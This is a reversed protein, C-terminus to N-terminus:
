NYQVVDQVVDSLSYNLETSIGNATSDSLEDISLNIEDGTYYINKHITMSEKIFSAKFIIKKTMGRFSGKRKCVILKNDKNHWKLDIYSYEGNEYNYNDGEDDYLTFFADAGTYVLLNILSPDIDNTSKAVECMPIISGEKVFVPIVDIPANCILEQGGEYYLNTNFDYWNNQKPLYVSRIKKIDRLQKSDIDHYMPKTVPCVMLNKGFLFQDKIDFVINESFDFAMTRLMTYDKFYVEAATSYIYPILSYRLKIHKVISDYYMTGAEGFRWPERPTDTGHSRFIPMFVGLQLWRTYLERYGLDYCGHNYDGNWFWMEPKKSVFFGGIDFTWYPCGTACFNLGAAIQKYLVDWKASIDGSWTISGFRQQGSYASRTLNVVRKESTNKRQGNYIGESHYLSYANIQEPDIYKKAESVNLQARECSNKRKEGNWDAEFPETCDCWWADVGKSFLGKEAHEWYLKRADDSFANYTSRNSLLFGKKDMEVYNEGGAFMNPWISMMFKINLKHLQNIMKEPNPFRKKDFTKQGWLDGEWSKWDLILLDLPINRKSFELAVELLEDSSFYREKSQMYGFAWKPLMPPKGTLYRYGKVVGDLNEGYIFYYDLQNVVDCYMYSDNSGDEFEMFSMCDFLLGYGKTSVLVPVCAKYNHQYLEQKTGRLNLNGEEHSGLGYLAEDKDFDFHLKASYAIRDFVKESEVVNTRLGDVMVKQELKIDEDIVSKYITIKELSKANIPERSILKGEKNFYSFIGSQCDMSLILQNTKLSIINNNNEYKVNIPKYDTKEIILSSDKLIDEISYVIRIINENIFTIFINGNELRIHYANNEIENCNIIRM